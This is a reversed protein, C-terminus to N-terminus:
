ELPLEPGRGATRSRLYGLMAGAEAALPGDPAAALSAFRKEAADPDGRWLDIMALKYRSKNAELSDPYDSITREFWTAATALDGRGIHAKAIFFTARSANEGRPHHALYAELVAIGEDWSGVTVLWRGEGFTADESGLELGPCGLLAAVLVLVAGPGLLLRSRDAM